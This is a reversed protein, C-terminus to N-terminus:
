DSVRNARIDGGLSATRKSPVKIFHKNIERAFLMEGYNKNVKKGIQWM